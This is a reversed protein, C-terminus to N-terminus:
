QRDGRMNKRRKLEAADEPEEMSTESFEYSHIRYFTLWGKKLAHIIHVRASVPDRNTLKELDSVLGNLATVTKAPKKQDKRMQLFDEWPEKPVWDPLIFNSKKGAPKPTLTFLGGRLIEQAGMRFMVIPKSSNECFAIERLFTMVEEPLDTRRIDYETFKM